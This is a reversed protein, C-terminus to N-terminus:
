FEVCCYYHKWGGINKNQCAATEQQWRQHARQQQITCVYTGSASLLLTAATNESQLCFSSEVLRCGWCPLCKELLSQAPIIYHTHSFSYFARRCVTHVQHRFLPSMSWLNSPRGRCIEGGGKKLIKKRDRPLLLLRRRYSFRFGVLQRCM